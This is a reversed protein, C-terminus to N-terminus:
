HNEFQTGLTSPEGCDLYLGISSCGCEPRGTMPEVIPEMELLQSGELGVCGDLQIWSGHPLGEGNEKSGTKNVETQEGCYGLM